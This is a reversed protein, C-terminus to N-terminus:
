NELNTSPAEFESQDKRWTHREALNRISGQVFIRHIKIWHELQAHRTKAKKTNTKTVLQCSM